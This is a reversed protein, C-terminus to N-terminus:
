WRYAVTPALWIRQRIAGMDAVPDLGSFSLVLLHKGSHGQSRVIGLGTPM